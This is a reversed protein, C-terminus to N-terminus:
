GKAIFEFDDDLEKMNKLIEDIYEGLGPSLASYGLSVKITKTGNKNDIWDIRRVINYLNEHCWYESLVGWNKLIDKRNIYNLIVKNSKIRKIVRDLKYINRDFASSNVRQNKTHAVREHWCAKWIKYAEDNFAIDLAVIRLEIINRLLINNEYVHGSLILDFATYIYKLVRLLLCISINKQENLKQSSEIMKKILGDYNKEFKEVRDKYKEEAIIRNRKFFGNAKKYTDLRNNENM